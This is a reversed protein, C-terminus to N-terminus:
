RRVPWAGGRRGRRPASCARGARSRAWSPRRSSTAGAWAHLRPPLPRSAPDTRWPPSTSGSPSIAAPATRRRSRGCSPSRRAADSRPTAAARISPAALLPLASPLPLWAARRQPRGGRRVAPDAERPAVSRAGAGGLAPGRHLSALSRRVPPGGGGDGGAARRVHRGRPRLHPPGRESRPRHVPLDAGAPEPARGAPQAGPGAGVRRAGVGARRRHHAEPAAGPRTRPRHAPAARRQLRPPLAAPPRAEAGGAGAARPGPAGAGSPEADRAGAAARRHHRAGDDAPEAVLLPGPLDDADPAAAAQAPQGVGEGRGGDHRQQPLAGRRRHAPLRPPDHTGGDDQGLRERGRPGPVRGRAARLERRGRGERPGGCPQVGRARDPLAEEAGTGAVAPSRRRDYRVVSVCLVCLLASYPSSIDFLSRQIDFSSHSLARTALGGCEVNSVGCEANLM